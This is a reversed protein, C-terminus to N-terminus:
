PLFVYTYWLNFRLKTKIPNMNICNFFPSKIQASKCSVFHRIRVILFSCQVSIRYCFRPWFWRFLASLLFTSFCFNQSYFHPTRSPPSKGWEAVWASVGVGEGQRGWGCGCGGKRGFEPKGTAM